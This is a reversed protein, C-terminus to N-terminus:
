RTPVVQFRRIPPSPASINGVNVFNEYGCTQNRGDTITLTVKKWGSSKFEVYDSPPEWGDYTSHKADEFEWRASLPPTGTSNNTFTVIETQNPAVPDWSFDVWPYPQEPTTFTSTESWGLWNDHDDKVRVKWEYTKNWNLFSSALEYTFTYSNGPTTSIVTTSNGTTSEKIQIEYGGQQDRDPDSFDSWSLTPISLSGNGAPNKFQCHDWTVRLNYPTQPPQNLAFTTTVGYTLTSCWNQNECNFSIWGIVASSSSNGGGWAWGLFEKTSTLYAGYNTGSLKIWGDWGGANLTTSGSCGSQFVACARAWGSLKGTSLDIKAECNGYQCGDLSSTNFSIWGINESWAYGSLTGDPNINVGYTSTSCWNQNECSFSIWGVNESWAWGFVNNSGGTQSETKKKFLFLSVFVLFSITLFVLFKKNMLKM